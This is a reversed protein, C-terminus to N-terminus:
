LAIRRRRYLAQLSLGACVTLLNLLAGVYLYMWPKTASTHAFIVGFLLNTSTFTIADAVCVAGLTSGVRDAPVLTTLVSVQSPGSFNGLTAIGAGLNFSFPQAETMVQTSLVHTDFLLSLSSSYEGIFMSVPSLFAVAILSGLIDLITGINFFTIDM